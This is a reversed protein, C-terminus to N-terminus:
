REFAGMQSPFVDMARHTLSAAAHGHKCVKRVVPFRELDKSVLLMCM